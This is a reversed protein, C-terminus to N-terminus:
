EYLMMLIDFSKWLFEVQQRREQCATTPIFCAKMVIYKESLCSNHNCHQVHELVFNAHKDRPKKLTRSHLIDSLCIDVYILISPGLGSM